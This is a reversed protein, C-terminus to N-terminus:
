LNLTLQLKIEIELPLHIYKQLLDFIIIILKEKRGKGERGGERGGERRGERGGERGGKGWLPCHKCPWQTRSPDSHGSDRRCEL